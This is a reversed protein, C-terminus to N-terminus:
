ALRILRQISLAESADTSRRLTQDKRGFLLSAADLPRKAKPSAV